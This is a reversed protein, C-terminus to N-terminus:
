LLRLIARRSSKTQRLRGLGADILSLRAMFKRGLRLQKLAAIMRPVVAKAAAHPPDAEPVGDGDGLAGITEERAPASDAVVSGVAGAVADAVCVAADPTGSKLCM